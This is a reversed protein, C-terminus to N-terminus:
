RQAEQRPDNDEAQSRHPGFIPRSLIDFHTAQRFISQRLARHRRETADRNNRKAFLM